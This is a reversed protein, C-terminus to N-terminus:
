SVTRAYWRSVHPTESRLSELAYTGGPAIVIDGSQPQPVDAKSLVVITRQVTPAGRYGDPPDIPETRVFARVTAQSGASTRYTVPMGLREVTGAAHAALAEQYDM